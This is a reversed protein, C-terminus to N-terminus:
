FKYYIIWKIIKTWKWDFRYHDPKKLSDKNDYMVWYGSNDPFWRGHTFSNRIRDSNYTKNGITVQENEDIFNEFVNVADDFELGQKQYRQVMPVNAFDDLFLNGTMEKVGAFKTHETVHTNEM